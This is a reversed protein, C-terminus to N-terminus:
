CPTSHYPYSILLPFDIQLIQSIFMGKLPTISFIVLIGFYFGKVARRTCSYALFPLSSIISTIRSLTSIRSTIFGTYLKLADPSSPGQFFFFLFAPSASPFFLLVFVEHFLLFLAHYFIVPLDTSEPSHFLLISLSLPFILPLFFPLNPSISHSIKSPLKILCVDRRRQM